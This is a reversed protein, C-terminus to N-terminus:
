PLQPPKPPLSLVSLSGGIIIVPALLAPFASIFSEKIEKFSARPQHYSRRKGIVYCMVMMCIGMLLGPMIGAAFLGGTSIGAQVAYVVAPISPPIIPGICSSTATVCASFPTDYGAQKMARIEVAGLGAADSSSSGSM